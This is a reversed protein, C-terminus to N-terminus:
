YVNDADYSNLINVSKPTLMYTNSKGVQRLDGGVAFAAGSLTDTIRQTETENKAEICVNITHGKVLAAIVARTDYLTYLSLMLMDSSRPSRSSARAPQEDTEEFRSRTRANAQSEQPADEFRSPRRNAQPEEARPRRANTGYNSRGGKESITQRAAAGRDNRQREPRYAEQRGYSGSNYNASRTEPEDDVLGIFNLVKNLVGNKNNAM